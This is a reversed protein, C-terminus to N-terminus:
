AEWTPKDVAQAKMRDEMGQRLADELTGLLGEVEPSEERIARLGAVLMALGYQTVVLVHGDEDFDEVGEGAVLIKGDDSFTPPVRTKRKKKGM